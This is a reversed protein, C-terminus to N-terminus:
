FVLPISYSKFSQNFQFTLLNLMALFLNNIPERFVKIIRLENYKFQYLYEGFKFNVDKIFKSKIDDKTSKGGLHSAMSKRDLYIDYKSRQIRKSIDVDEWYFFFNEDFKKFKKFLDKKVLFIAGIM